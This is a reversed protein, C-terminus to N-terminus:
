RSLLDEMRSAMIPSSGRGKSHFEFEIAVVGVTSRPRYFGCVEFLARKKIGFYRFRPVLTLGVQRM